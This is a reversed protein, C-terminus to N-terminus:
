WPPGNWTFREQLSLGPAVKTGLMTQFVERLVTGALPALRSIFSQSRALRNGNEDRGEM